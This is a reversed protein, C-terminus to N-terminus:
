YGIVRFLVNLGVKILQPHLREALSCVVGYSWYSLLPVM